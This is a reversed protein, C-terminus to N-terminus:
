IALGIIFGPRRGYIDGIRTITVSGLVIGLLFFSGFLGVVM